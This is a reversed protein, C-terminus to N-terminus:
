AGDERLVDVAQGIWELYSEFTQQANELLHAIDNAYDTLVARTADANMGAESVLDVNSMAILQDIHKQVRREGLGIALGRLNYVLQRIDEPQDDLLPVARAQSSANDTVREDETRLDMPPHDIVIVDSPLVTYQRGDDAHCILRSGTVETVEAEWNSYQHRIRKGVWHQLMAEQAGASPTPSDALADEATAKRLNNTDFTWIKSPDELEQVRVMGDPKVEYVRCLIGADTVVREGARFPPEPEEARELTDQDHQRIGNADQVNAYRGSIGVVKGIRGTRTEVWDGVRWKNTQMPPLPRSRVPAEVRQTPEDHPWEARDASPMARDVQSTAPTPKPQKHAAIAQRLAKELDWVTVTTVTYLVKRLSEPDETGLQGIDRMFGEAWDNDDGLTWILDNVEDDDTLRLLGRYQRMQGTSINLTNEFSTGMNRPIQHKPGDAVQAYYARDSDFDNYHLYEDDRAAMLLKAFQRAKSIANLDSRVMNESAQMDALGFEDNEIVRAAIRQYKDDPYIMNLLHYALWRREGFVILYSGDERQTVGIPHSLQSEHINGALQVVKKFKDTTPPYNDEAFPNEEGDWISQIGFDHGLEIVVLEKWRAFLAPVADPDGAWDGRVSTPVSRRPQTVDAWIADIRIPQAVVRGTDMEDATLGYIANTVSQLDDGSDDFANLKKVNKHRSM